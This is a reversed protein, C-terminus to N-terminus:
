RAAGPQSASRASGPGKSPRPDSEPVLIERTEGPPTSLDFTEPVTSVAVPAPAASTPAATGSFASLVASVAKAMSAARSAGDSGASSAVDDGPGASGM